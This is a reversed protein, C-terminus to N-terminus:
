KVPAGATPNGAEPMIGNLTATHEFIVGDANTGFFRPVALPDLPDALAVYGPAARGAALGNCSAPAGPLPTGTVTFSYGSRIVTAASAMDSPLFAEAGAPPRRGLTQLDPSYFGSACTVAFSLQASNIVRLTALASAAHAAGRARGLSPLALSSLLGILGVVFLMDILTYGRQGAM